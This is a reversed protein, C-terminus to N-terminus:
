NMVVNFRFTSNRDEEGAWPYYMPYNTGWINDFLIFAVGKKLNNSTNLPIPFPSFNDYINKEGAFASLGADLPEFQIFNEMESDLCSIYRTTGHLHLSGICVILESCLIELFIDFKGNAVVDNVLVPEDFKDATYESCQSQGPNALFWLTEPIRTLTKNILTM